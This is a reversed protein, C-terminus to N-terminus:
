ADVSQLPVSGLVPLEFHRQADVAGRVTVDVYELVVAAAIAAVIGFLAFTEMRRAGKTPLRTGPVIAAQFVIAPRPDAFPGPPELGKIESVFANSVGNTLKQAVLPDRDKVSVNILTTNLVPIASTANVVDIPSRTVGTDHVAAEATPLSEMMRAFTPSLEGAAVLPDSGIAGSQPNRGIASPEVFVVASAQYIKKRSTTAYGIAVAVVVIVVMLLVHRRLIFLYRRLEMQPFDEKDAAVWRIQV